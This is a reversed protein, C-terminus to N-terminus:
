SAEDGKGEQGTDSDVYEWHCGGSTGHREIARRIPTGSSLGNAKGAANLSSFLEGTEVCRVMKASPQNSGKRTRNIPVSGVYEWTLGGAKHREGKAALRISNALIGTNRAAEAFSKYEVGTEVCRVASKAVSIYKDANDKRSQLDEAYCWHKGDFTHYPNRCCDSIRSRASSSNKYTKAAASANKYLAGTEVCVVKRYREIKIVKAIEEKSLLDYESCDMFHYGATTFHSKSKVAHEVSASKIGFDIAADAYTKYRQGTELCVVKFQAISMRATAVKEESYSAETVWHFGKVSTDKELVRSISGGSLGYETEEEKQSEFRQSTELCIVAEQRNKKAVIHPIRDMEYDILYCWKVGEKDEQSKRIVASIGYGIEREAEKISPYSKLTDLRIVPLKIKAPKGGYGCYPCGGNNIVKSRIQLKYPRDCSPCKWWVIQTSLPRVDSPTVNGNREFDWQKAISPYQATLSDKSPDFVSGDFDFGIAQLREVQSATLSGKRYHKRLANVYYHKTRKEDSM